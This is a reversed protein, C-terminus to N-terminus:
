AWVGAGGSIASPSAAATTRANAGSQAPLGEARRAVGAGVQTLGQRAVSGEVRFSTGAVGVRRGLM